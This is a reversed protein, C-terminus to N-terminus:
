PTVLVPSTSLRRKLDDFATQAEKTWTFNDTKQLLWYFPLGKEGLKSIFHSLAALLGTLQEIHQLTRPPQM